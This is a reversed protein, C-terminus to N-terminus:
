EYGTDEFMSEDIGIDKRSKDPINLRNQLTPFPGKEGQIKNCDEWDQLWGKKQQELRLRKGSDFIVKGDWNLRNTFWEKLIYCMNRQDFYGSHWMDGYMIPREKRINRQAQNCCSQNGEEQFNIDPTNKVVEFWNM